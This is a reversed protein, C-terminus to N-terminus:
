SFGAVSQGSSTTSFIPINNGKRTLLAPPDGCIAKRARAWAQAPPKPAGGRSAVSWFVSFLLALGALVLLVLGITLLAPM